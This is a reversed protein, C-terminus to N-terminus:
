RLRFMGPDIGARELEDHRAARDKADERELWANPGAARDRRRDESAQIFRIIRWGAILGLFVAAMWDGLIPYLVGAMPAGCLVALFADTLFALVRQM